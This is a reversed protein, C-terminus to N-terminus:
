PYVALDPLQVEDGPGVVAVAFRRAGHEDAPFCDTTLPGLAGREITWRPGDALRGQPEGRANIVTMGARAHPSAIATVLRTGATEIGNVPGGGCRLDADALAITQEDIMGAVTVAESRGGPSILLAAGPVPWPRPCPAALTLRRQQYDVAAVKAGVAGRGALRFAGASLETGNLLMARRVTGDPALWLCAAQGDTRCTEGVRLARGPSLSHVVILKDGDVLELEVAVADDNVPLAAARRIWPTERYPEFVTVFSSALDEGRRERLLYPVKPPLQRYGQVVGECAIIEQEGGLLHARLGLGQWPRAAQGKLPETLKFTAVAVGALTARRLGTFYQFGSGRYGGYSVTGLPKDRLAPDDYFQEFPVDAGALTGRGHTPGLEPSCTLESQTGMISWDHRQGGRVHFVDVLCTREPSLELQMVARRYLSVRGPYAGEASAEAVQAFGTPQWARLRTPGREQPLADVTVTNHAITNSWIGYRRPNYADTQEPYGVDCLLANDHAFLLLNLQDRHMHHGWSGYHLVGATLSGAAGSEMVALGYGPFLRSRPGAASAAPIDALADEIAPAFLDRAAGPTARVVAALRPDPFHRVAAACVTPSLAVPGAFMDGSDGLAPTFRGAVTLDFPWTLLRQFRPHRYLNRGVEVLPEAVQSLNVVWGLNYGPSEQPVGDRYVLNELADLVGMDSDVAPRPNALVWQIMDASTPARETEAMTAALQVLASQHMGYNGRCRGQGSTIDVAMTRLLRERLFADLAEGDLGSRQQLATDARLYPWVADYALACPGVWGVEWIYNTIRGGYSPNREGERSQKEYLYDPYHSALRWLLLACQHAFRAAQDPDPAVVAGLALEALAPQLFRMMSWHAYYAVFWYKEGTKPDRWGRGDDAFEGTLLSRDKLGSALYRGFDNSPYSEGGAPCQIQFPHRHDIGWRYLGGQNAAAGHVPCGLNHLDYARPVEPPIVLAALEDDSLESWKAARRVAADRLSRAWDHRELNTQLRALKDATYWTRETKATVPLANLLLMLHCAAMM